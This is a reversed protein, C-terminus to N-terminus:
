KKHIKLSKHQTCCIAHDFILAFYFWDLTTEKNEPWIHLDVVLKYANYFCSVKCFLFSPPGFPYALCAQEVPRHSYLTLAIKAEVLGHCEMPALLRVECM